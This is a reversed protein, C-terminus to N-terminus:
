QESGNSYPEPITETEQAVSRQRRAQRNDAEQRYIHENKRKKGSPCCKLFPPSSADRRM